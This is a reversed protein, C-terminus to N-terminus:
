SNVVLRDVFVVRDFGGHGAFELGGRLRTVLLDWCMRGLTGKSIVRESCTFADSLDDFREDFEQGVRCTCADGDEAPGRRRGVRAFEEHLDDM